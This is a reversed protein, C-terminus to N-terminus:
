AILGNRRAIALAEASVVNSNAVSRGSGNLPKASSTEGENGGSIEPTPYPKVILSAVTSAALNNPIVPKQWNQPPRAEVTSGLMQRGAEVTSGSQSPEAEVTSGASKKSPQWLLYDNTAGRGRTTVFTLRYERAQREKWVAEAAVDILGHEMLEALGSIIKRNHCGIADKLQRQSRVIEGNNYGNMAATIEVLIARAHLSLSRYAASNIVCLPIGAWPGGRTDARCDAKVKSKAM